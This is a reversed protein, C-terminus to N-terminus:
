KQPRRHIPRKAPGPALYHGPTGGPGTETAMYASEGRSLAGSTARKASGPALYHGPTGGPGAGTAVSSRLRKTEKSQKNGKLAM